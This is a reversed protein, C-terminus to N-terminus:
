TDTSTFFNLRRNDTRDEIIQFTEFKLVNTWRGLHVRDLIGTEATWM